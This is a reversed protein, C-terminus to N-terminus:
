ILVLYHCLLSVDLSGYFLPNVGDDRQKRLDKMSEFTAERKQTVATLEAELAGIDKEIALKADDLQKLKANVAQKERRVGDLGVGILQFQM